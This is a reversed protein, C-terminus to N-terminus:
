RIKWQVSRTRVMVVQQGYRVTASYVATLQRGTVGRPIRWACTQIEALQAGPGYLAHIEARLTRRGISATCDIDWDLASTGRLSAAIGVFTKGAVPRTRSLAFSVGESTSGAPAALFLLLGVVM